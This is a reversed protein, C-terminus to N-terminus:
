EKNYNISIIVFKLPHIADSWIIGKSDSNQEVYAAILRSIGIGYCGMMVMNKKKEYLIPKTQFSKSYRSKLQFIHGIEIGRKLKLFGKGDPSIDGEEVNRIDYIGEYSIDRNWNNNIFTIKDNIFIGM